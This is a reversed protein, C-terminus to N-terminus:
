WPLTASPGDLPWGRREAYGQLDAIRDESSPHTSLYTLAAPQSLGEDLLREFFRNSDAVHGYEAHLMELGFEDADSEQERNFGRATLDAVTLGFGGASDGGFVASFFVAIAVSRGLMRLHDRNRFHGLEHGLVFALENETAARDLLGSTVVILGGPFAMANPVDSSDIELRYEYPSGEVHAALRALLARTPELREDQADISVMDDPAWDAFLRAETEPSVFMLVIEVLFVIVLAVVAFFAGLAVVLIGAEALPHTDSVNIGERPKRAVYKM